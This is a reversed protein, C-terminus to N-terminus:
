EAAPGEGPVGTVFTGKHPVTTVLGRERLVKLARRVTDISVGHQTIMAREGPLAAGLPLRGSRIEAEIDDALRVYAYRLDM